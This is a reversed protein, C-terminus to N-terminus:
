DDGGDEEDGATRRAAPTDDYEGWGAFFGAIGAAVSWGAVSWWRLGAASAAIAVASFAASMIGLKTNKNMITRM